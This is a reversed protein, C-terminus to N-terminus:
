RLTSSFFNCSEDVEFAGFITLRVTPRNALFTAICIWIWGERDDRQKQLISPSLFGSPALTLSSCAGASGTECADTQARSPPTTTVSGFTPMRQSRNSLFLNEQLGLNCWPPLSPNTSKAPRGLPVVRVGSRLFFCPAPAPQQQCGPPVLVASRVKQLARLHEAAQAGGEFQQLVPKGTLHFSTPVSGVRYRLWHPRSCSGELNGHRCGCSWSETAKGDAEGLDRLERM